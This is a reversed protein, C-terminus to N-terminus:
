EGNKKDIREFLADLQVIQRIGNQTFSIPRGFRFGHLKLFDCVEDFRPEGLYVEDFVAEVLVSDVRTLLEVAGRLAALENGQLDLKLLTPRELQVSSFFTDLKCIPVDIRNVVQVRQGVSGLPLISSCQSDSTQNFTVQGDFDGLATETLTVLKHDGLNRRFTAAVDTLPEFSFIKAKPFQMHCAAAFQGINAGGDIITRYNNGLSKISKVIRMSAISRPRSRILDLLDVPFELFGLVSHMRRFFKM